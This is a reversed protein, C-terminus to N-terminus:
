PSRQDGTTSIVCGLRANSRGPARCDASYGNHDFIVATAVAFIAPSSHDVECGLQSPRSVSRAEGNHSPRWSAARYQLLLSFLIRVREAKEALSASTPHRAPLRM